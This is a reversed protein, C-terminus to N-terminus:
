FTFAAELIPDNLKVILLRPESFGEEPVEFSFAQLMDYDDTEDRSFRGLDQFRRSASNEAVDRPVNREVIVDPGEGHCDKPKPILVLVDPLVSSRITCIYVAVWTVPFKPFM